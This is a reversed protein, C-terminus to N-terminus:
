PTDLAGWGGALALPESNLGPWSANALTPASPPEQPSTLLVGRPDAERGGVSGMLGLRFGWLTNGDHVAM